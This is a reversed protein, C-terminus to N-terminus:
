TFLGQRLEQVASSIYRDNSTTTNLQDTITQPQQTPINGRIGFEIVFSLIASIIRRSSCPQQAKKPWPGPLSLSRRVLWFAKQGVLIREIQFNAANRRGPLIQICDPQRAKRQKWISSCWEIM